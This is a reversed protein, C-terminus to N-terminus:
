LKFSQSVPGWWRWAAPEMDDGNGEWEGHKHDECWGERTVVWSGASSKRTATCKVPCSKLECEAILTNSIDKICKMRYGSCRSSARNCDM